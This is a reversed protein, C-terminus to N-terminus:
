RGDFIVVFKAELNRLRMSVRAVKCANSCSYAVTVSTSVFDTAAVGHKNDTHLKLIFKLVITLFYYSSPVNCLHLNIM